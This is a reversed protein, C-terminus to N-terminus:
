GRITVVLMGTLELITAGGGGGGRAGFGVEQIGKVIRESWNVSPM